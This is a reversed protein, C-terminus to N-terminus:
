AVDDDLEIVDRMRLDVAARAVKLSDADTHEPADAPGGRQQLQERYAELSPVNAPTQVAQGLDPLAASPRIDQRLLDIMAWGLAAIFMGFVATQLM